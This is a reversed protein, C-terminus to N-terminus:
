RTKKRNLAYAATALLFLWIAAGWIPIQYEIVFETGGSLWEVSRLIMDYGGDLASCMWKVEFGSCVLLTFVLSMSLYFPLVPLILLNSPLFMVPIQSFYYSTLVWSAATAVITAILAGCIYYLAPHRRHGIPNLRSAFAILAWVCVVSLQFGADFLASPDFLLILLCASCLANGAFNKREAIIGIFSFTTMIAARVSSYAMGTLAVYIWLVVIATAYGWKYRGMLKLPWVLLMLFGAIIGIHLGSLALMHAMGGNAFTLRTQDDLGTKDGMLIAKLFDATPKKLQSREIARETKERLGTFLYKPNSSRGAPVLHIPAIRGSYMIGSAKLMQAIRRGTDTTDSSVEHLRNSSIRIIDGPSFDTVGSRIRGKAGNTGYIVVDIRDGYTKTLIGTVECIISDPVSGEFEEDLSIPRSLSEDTIGIGFFLAMVWVMHWKGIRFAEVPNKSAHLIFLYLALAAAIPIIGAWWPLDAFYSFAIGVGFALTPILPGTKM